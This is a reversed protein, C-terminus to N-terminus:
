LNEKHSKAADPWRLMNSIEVLGTMKETKEPPTQTDLYM